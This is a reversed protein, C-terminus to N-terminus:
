DTTFNMNLSPRFNAHFDQFYMTRKMESRFEPWADRLQVPELHQLPAQYTNTNTHRYQQLDILEFPKKPKTVLSVLSPFDPLEPPGIPEFGILQFPTPKKLIDKLYSLKPDTAIMKSLPTEENDFIPGCWLHLTM